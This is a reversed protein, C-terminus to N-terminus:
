WTLLHMGLTHLLNPYLCSLLEALPPCVLPQQLDCTTVVVPLAVGNCRYVGPKLM